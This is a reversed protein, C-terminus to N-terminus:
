PISTILYLKNPKCLVVCCKKQRRLSVTANEISNWLVIKLNTPIFQSVSSNKQLLELSARMERAEWTNKPELKSPMKM